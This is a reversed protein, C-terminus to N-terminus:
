SSSSRLALVAAWAQGLALGGDNLPVDRATLVNTGGVRETLGRELIANQFSGGTLVVRRLGTAALTATVVAATADIITRHFRAAVLASDAGGQLDTALARVAPRLDIEHEPGLAITNAPATFAAADHMALAAPLVYPYAAGDTTDAAQELAMPVHGDFGARPLALALAGVADFWRGMGRAAVCSVGTDIMRTVPGLSSRPVTAFLPLRRAISLAEETGFADCLAALAIRWVERIAREGGPLLLPRFSSVRAWRQGDIVLIEAGWSTGDPGWGSGDFAVGVVPEDIHLEAVTALVHAVHHQIGFRLRADRALAYRTSTYEPHLDHALVAARVGLLQEFGEVDRRWALASEEFELDGLHPTLYALDGLVLCATNKMHGGLALVPEPACAPLRIPVPSLGRSRRLVRAASGATAVVSDEVRRAIPRDHLLFADAISGLTARAVEHDIVAPGGSPNGSTMVIPRDVRALLLHHLPTYPLMVGMRRSPGRVAPAIQAERAPMLVIPRAPSALAVRCAADLVGIAEAMAMDRVMVAFPQADRRKRRRLESVAAESTADCALHFAGLGQVAIIEGGRILEAARQLPSECELERGRADALWLRPGCAPCALTQAHFRRAGPAEYEAACAACPTFDRLTTHARDFPLALAVAFRPGCETCATFAYDHHRGAPDNTDRLCGECLSLDAPIALSARGCSTSPAIRFGASPSAEDRADLPTVRLSRVRAAAPPRSQIAAVLEDLQSATGFAEISVGGGTNYVRGGLGLEGAVRYVWPRFGVGQVIGDVEIRRGARTSPDGGNVRDIFFRLAADLHSRAPLSLEAGLEFREGRIALLYSEPPEGAIELHTALVAEPSLAHSTASRDRRATIRAFEFPAPTEVSADVFVVRQRGTLDLAHEIQLQYDSLLELTGCSVLPALAEGLREVFLPGLADDGRSPNGVGLVLLPAPAAM